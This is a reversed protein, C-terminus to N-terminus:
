TESDDQTLTALMLLVTGIVTFYVGVDFFFPTGPKLKGALFTPIAFEPWLATLFPLNAILAPLGSCAATLLGIAIFTLPSFYVLRLATPYGNAFGYFVVAAAAVLGGIFGGGPENHGRILLVLSLILQLPTTIKACVQLLVSNM